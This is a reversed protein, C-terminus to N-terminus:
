NSQPDKEEPSDCEITCHHIGHEKMRRKLDNKVATMQKLDKLVVHFTAAIETTSIAWIHLHHWGSIAPTDSLIKKITPLDVSNPVGDLSLCVSDKLLRVTSILIVGAIVLSIVPDIWIWNKISILIGSFVVGVSVLTDTLMHLFAGRMNIDSDRGKMLLLTTIGNVLIGIGATWSIVEGSVPSPYKLRYVSEVVIVGIAILLIITNALSILITGKKYGYTFHENRMSRAARFALLVLLLSFVDSLNHGADSLLGVSHYCLGVVTEIVVFVLNLAVCSLFIRVVSRPVKAQVRKQSYDNNEM